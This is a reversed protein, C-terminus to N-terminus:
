EGEEEGMLEDMVNVLESILVTSQTQTAIHKVNVKGEALESEGVI